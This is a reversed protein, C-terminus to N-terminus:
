HTRTSYISVSFSEDKCYAIDDEFKQKHIKSIVNIKWSVVISIELACSAIKMKDSSFERIHSKRM